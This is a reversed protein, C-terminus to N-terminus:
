RNDSTVRCLNRYIRDYHALVDEGRFRGCACTFAAQGIERRSRPEAALRTLAGAIARPSKVDVLVGAAGHELMGPVAGSTRGAVIPLGLAMGEAIAMGFSEELSPHLLVDVDSALRRLLIANPVAGAFELNLALARARAWREAPGGPAYDQGFLLLRAEPVTRRLIGFAQLAVPGNKLGKWGTLAAAVTFPGSRPHSLRLRGLDFCEPAVANPVVHIPYRYRFYRRFHDAVHSSVATLHRARRAVKWAMCLRLVRYPDPRRRVIKFPADHATVLAPCASDLAAMAFEYTWHAHVLDPREREIAHVLYAREASFLDRARGSHRYPGICFKIQEGELVVERDVSRDLTFVVVQRGQRLMAEILNVVPSGGLGSPIPGDRHGSNLYKALPALSLPGAIGLKLM